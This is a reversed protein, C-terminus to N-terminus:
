GASGELAVLACAKAMIQADTHHQVQILKRPCASACNGCGQCAAPDIHVVGEGTLRPVGYPCTRVCTLCAVCREADVVAVEGGVLMESQALVTAARGAAAKAQATVEEAFKPGHAAGAMFFGANVFDVPRLKLHAEMFFGDNDLSLKLDGALRAAGSAPRVAASLVLLDAELELEEGLLDDRVRVALREGAREVRPPAQPDFRVFRVGAERASRYWLEKLSFTRIDRYLVTVEVGPKLEKIRLANAVAQSCCIRSCYPHEEDRSGVCQQMVVRAVGELPDGDGYLREHLDLQTLVRPDSGCGHLDPRHESAGVAVILAGHDVSTAQDGSVLRSTFAGVHGSTEAVRSSTHVKILGHHTARDVLGALHAQLDFGELTRHLRRALGGLEAEQEVLHTLFGQEALSLAATLGALGGGVVVAAQNVPTPFRVLPQLVGARASSMRVLDKAKGTAAAHDAQHVWSCQDRINAMEFLYPNLGAKQLTAQFLPEHTRPSCSAVVVRNLRHEAIAEAMREQSDTSCTFLFEQALAVGPLSRAYDVVAAVDVVSGINVGCHCVFVGIRPEEGAVEREPPQEVAAARSGRGPALLEGAQAAAGSAQMVTDPIDRPAQFGGCAYVGPRSTALPNLEERAAFGFRDTEVGLRGAAAVGDPHPALGVSLVVLDFREEVTQGAADLYSILLDGTNPDELVRSPMTRLYRVGHESKARQYYRDFGKGQARIDMFFITSSLGPAHEQAIIAQKSAYMCCVYSCYDRGIAPDRSGVCQIWAVRKPEAGDGPRKVHGGYPGSASNIREFELSTIVNAYRGYGFEPRGHPDFPKFGPAMIVAGVALELTEPEMAHNIAGAQCVELCQYCESCIGCALCRAAEARADEEGLASAVEQFGQARTDAPLRAPRRRPEAAVGSVDARALERPEQRGRALDEGRLFRHISEAARKGQAIAEVATAPGTLADGGAFVWDLGTQLTLPDAALRRGRLTELGRGEALWDLEPRQGIASIVADVELTRESGAVPV